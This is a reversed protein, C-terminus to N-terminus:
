TRRELFFVSSGSIAVSIKEHLERSDAWFEYGFGEDFALEIRGVPSIYTKFVQGIGISGAVEQKATGLVTEIIRNLEQDTGAYESLVFRESKIEQIKAREM